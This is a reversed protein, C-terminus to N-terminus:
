LYFVGLKLRDLLQALTYAPDPLHELVDGLHLVDYKAIPAQRSFHGVPIVEAGKSRTAARAADEDFEVGFGNFGVSRVARLFHGFGCGYDLIAAGPLVFNQLM